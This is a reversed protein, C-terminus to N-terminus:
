SSLEKRSEATPWDASHGANQPLTSCMTTYNASVHTEGNRKSPNELFMIELGDAIWKDLLVDLEKISNYLM